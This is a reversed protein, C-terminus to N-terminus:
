IQVIANDILRTLGLKAATLIVFEKCNSSPVGLDHLHRISFYEVSFGASKLSKISDKELAKFDKDGKKLKEGAQMLSQYLFSANQREYDNLYQNRSSMALGDHERITKGTIIKVPLNLDSSMHRIILQQQFDKEGFVSINPQVMIFLRAVVSTVGDFHGPRSKGCFQKSIIPVSISTAEELGHPYITEKSPAFILDTSTKNLHEIDDDLNRPYKDFDENKGFQMPNVFISVIVKSAYKNAIEVLSSHGKHLNGMTAVLAIYENNQRWENLKEELELRNKVVKM